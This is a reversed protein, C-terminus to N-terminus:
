TATVESLPRGHYAYREFASKTPKAVRYHRYGDSQLLALGLNTVKIIKGYLNTVYM